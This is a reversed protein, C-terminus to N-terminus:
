MNKLLTSGNNKLHGHTMKQFEYSQPFNEFFLRQCQESCSGRIILESELREHYVQKTKAMDILTNAARVGMQYTPQRIVTLPPTFIDGWDHDDFGILGIDRPCNLGLERFAHLAGSTMLNNTSFIATPRTELAMLQKVGQYGGEIRSKGQIVYEQRFPIRSAELAEKYGELRTETTSVDPLGLIIGINQHGDNILHSTALHAAAVNDLDILSANDVPANRDIFVVPIGIEVLYNLMASERGTPAIILGDIQRSIMTRLVAEQNSDIEGTNALILEYGEVTLVSELGMYVCTFFPNSIDSFVVGIIKSEKGALGRAIASPMYGLDSIAKKVKETTEESVFRTNNIVHSVTATSVGAVRAVDMISPIHKM